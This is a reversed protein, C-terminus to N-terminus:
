YKVHTSVIALHRRPGCRLSSVRRTASRLSARSGDSACEASSLWVRAAWSGSRESSHYIGRPRACGATVLRCACTSKANVPSIVPIHEGYHDCCGLSGTPDAGAMPWSGEGVHSGSIM